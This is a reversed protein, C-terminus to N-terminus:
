KSLSEKWFKIEAESLPFKSENLIKAYHFLFLTIINKVAYCNSEITGVMREAKKLDIPLELNRNIGSAFDRIYLKDGEDLIMMGHKVKNQFRLLVGDSVTRNTYAGNITELLKELLKRIENEDFKAFESFVSLSINLKEVFEDVTSVKAFDALNKNVFDHSAWCLLLYEWVDKPNKAVSEYNNRDRFASLWMILDETSNMLEETIRLM